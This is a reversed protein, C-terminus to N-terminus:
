LVKHALLRRGTFSRSHSLADTRTCARGRATLANTKKSNRSRPSSVTTTCNMERQLDAVTLDEPDDALSPLPVKVTEIREGKYEQASESTVDEKKNRGLFSFHHFENVLWPAASLPISVQEYHLIKVEMEDKGPVNAFKVTKLPLTKKDSKVHRPMDLEALVKKAPPSGATNNNVPTTLRVRCNTIPKLASKLPPPPLKITPTGRPSLLEPEATRHKHFLKQKLSALVRSSRHPTQSSTPHIPSYEKAVNATAPLSVSRRVDLDDDDPVKALPNGVAQRCSHISPTVSNHGRDMIKHSLLMMKYLSQHNLLSNLPQGTRKILGAILLARLM